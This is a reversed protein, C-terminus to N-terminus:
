LEPTAARRLRCVQLLLCPWLESEILLLGSPRWHQLFRILTSSCDVPRRQLVVRPGLRELALRALATETSSTILAAAHADRELLARVIPLSSLTEGVSAGHVWLLYECRPRPAPAHVLAEHRAHVGGKTWAVAGAQPSVRPRARAHSLLPTAFLHSLIHRARSVLPKIAEALAGYCRLTLPAGRFAM